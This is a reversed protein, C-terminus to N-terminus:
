LPVQRYRLGSDEDSRQRESCWLIIRNQSPQDYASDTHKAGFNNLMLKPDNKVLLFKFIQRNKTIKSSRRTPVKFERNGEAIIKASSVITLTDCRMEWQILTEMICLAGISKATIINDINSECVCNPQDAHVSHIGLM